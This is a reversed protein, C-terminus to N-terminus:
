LAIQPFLRKLFDWIRDPSVEFLAIVKPPFPKLFIRFILTGAVLSSVANKIM